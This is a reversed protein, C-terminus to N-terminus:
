RPLVKVRTITGDMDGRPVLDFEVKQDAKLDKALEASIRFSMTMAPWKLAPVPDHKIIIRGMAADKGIVVGTAKVAAPAAQAGPSSGEKKQSSVEAASVALTGALALVLMLKKM